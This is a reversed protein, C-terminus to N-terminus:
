LLIQKSSPIPFYDSKIKNVFFVQTLRVNKEDYLKNVGHFQSADYCILRNYINNFKITEEYMDNNEKNKEIYKKKNNSNFETFMEIKYENNLSYNYNYDKKKRFISTGCDKSILPSLYIIGAYVYNIDQHIWGVDVEEYENPSILQFYTQVEWSVEKEKLDFNLYFLKECFLSFYHPSLDSLLKTRKGPFNEGEYYELSLAFNRVLDPDNFFNDVCITPFYM